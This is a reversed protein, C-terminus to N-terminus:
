DEIQPLLDKVTELLEKEGYLIFYKSIIGPGEIYSFDPYQMRVDDLTFRITKWWIRGAEFKLSAKM